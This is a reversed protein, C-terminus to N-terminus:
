AVDNFQYGFGDRNHFVVRELRNGIRNVWPRVGIRRWSFSAQLSAVLKKVLYFTFSFPAMSIIQDAHGRGDPSMEGVLHWIAKGLAHEESIGTILFMSNNWEEVLEQDDLIIIGNTSQTIFQRLKEELVGKEAMTKNHKEIEEALRENIVFLEENNAHLEENSTDLEEMAAQLEQNSSELEQTKEEVRKEMRWCYAMLEEQERKQMSIDKIDLATIHTGNGIVHWVRIRALFLRGDQKKCWAEFIREEEIEIFLRYFEEANKVPLGNWVVDSLLSFFPRGKLTNYEFGLLELASQNLDAILLEELLVLSSGSYAFVQRYLKDSLSTPM